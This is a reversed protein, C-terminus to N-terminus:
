ILFYTDDIIKLFKDIYRKYNIILENHKALENKIMINSLKYNQKINNLMKKNERLSYNDCLDNKIVANILYLNMGNYYTKLEKLKIIILEDNEINDINDNIINILKIRNIEKQEKIYNDINYLIYEGSSAYLVILCISIIFEYNYFIYASFPLSIIIWCSKIISIM